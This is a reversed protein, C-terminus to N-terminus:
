YSGTGAHETKSKQFVTSSKLSALNLVCPCIGIQIMAYYINTYLWCSSALISYSAFFVVTKLCEIIFEEIIMYM